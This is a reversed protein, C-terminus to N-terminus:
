WNLLYRRSLDKFIIIWVEEKFFLRIVVVFIPLEKGQRHSIMISDKSKFQSSGDLRLAKQCNFPPQLNETKKIRM